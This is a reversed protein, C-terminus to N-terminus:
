PAVGHAIEDLDLRHTARRGVNKPRRAPAPQEALREDDLNIRLTRKGDSGNALRPRWHRFYRLFPALAQRGIERPGIVGVSQSRDLYRAGAATVEHQPEIKGMSEVALALAFDPDALM